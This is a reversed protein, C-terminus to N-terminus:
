KGFYHGYNSDIKSWFDPDPEDASLPRGVYDKAMAEAAIGIQEDTMGEPWEAFDLLFDSIMGWENSSPEWFEPLMNGFRYDYIFSGVDSIQHLNLIKDEFTYQKQRQNM